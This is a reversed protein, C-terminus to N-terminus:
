EALKRRVSTEGTNGRDLGASRMFPSDKGRGWINAGEAVIGGDVVVTEGTVFGGDDSALFAATAAIHKPLGPDPWPQRGVLPAMRSVDGRHVLPTEILGPAIGCVRIRDPALELAVTRVISIVAAKAASYAHSGGGGSVGAVSATALIVGGGQDRMPKVAHKIGLFVSRTLLTFTQDWEEVRTEAIPGYAGGAGANLYAIDLRGFRDLAAAVSAETDAESAADAAVFVIRDGQGAAEAAAVTAAGNAQNLDSVVVAAGEALFREVTARGIGSAGGTVWAVRGQLRRGAGEDM